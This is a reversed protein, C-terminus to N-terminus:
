PIWSCAIIYLFIIYGHKIFETYKKKEKEEKRKEEDKKKSIIEGHLKQQGLVRHLEPQGELGLSGRKFKLDVLVNHSKRTM